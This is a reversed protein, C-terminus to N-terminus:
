NERSAHDLKSNVILEGLTYNYYARGYPTRVYSLIRRMWSEKRLPAQARAVYKLSVGIVPRAWKRFEETNKLLEKRQAQEKQEFARILALMHEGDTNPKEIQVYSALPLDVLRLGSAPLIYIDVWANFPAKNKAVLWRKDTNKSNINVMQPIFNNPEGLLSEIDTTDHNRDCGYLHTILAKRVVKPLPLIREM